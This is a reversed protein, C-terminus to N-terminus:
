KSLAAAGAECVESDQAPSKGGSCGIAGVLQGGVMLPIGGEFVVAGPLSAIATRGNALAEGFVKTPARYLVASKAKKQAFEGTILSAGDMRQFLVLHAGDDLVAISLHGEGKIAAAEAAAVLKKAEALTLVKKDALQAQASTAVLAMGLMTVLAAMRNM